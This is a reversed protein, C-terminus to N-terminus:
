RFVSRLIPTKSLRGRCCGIFLALPSQKTKKPCATRQLAARKVPPTGENSGPTLFPPHAPLLYCRRSPPL